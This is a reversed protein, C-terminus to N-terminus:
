AALLAKWPFSAGPDGKASNKVTGDTNYRTYPQVDSHALVGNWQQSDDYPNHGLDPRDFTVGHSTLLARIRDVIATKRTSTMNAFDTAKCAVSIGIGNNGNSAHYARFYRPDLYKLTTGEDIIYHYGAHRGEEGLLIQAVELASGTSGDVNGESTHIVAFKYSDSKFGNTTRAKAVGNWGNKIASTSTAAYGYTPQASPLGAAKTIKTATAAPPAALPLPAKLDVVPIGSAVAVQIRLEVIINQQDDTDNPIWSQSDEVM